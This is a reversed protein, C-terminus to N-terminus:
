DEFTPRVKVPSSGERYIGVRIPKPQKDKRSRGMRSRIRWQCTSLSYEVGRIVIMSLAILEYTRLSGIGRQIRGLLQQVLKAFHTFLQFGGTRLLYELPGHLPKALFERHRGRKTRLTHNDQFHERPQRRCRVDEIQIGTILKIFSQLEPLRDLLLVTDLDIQQLRFQRHPLVFLEVFPWEVYRIRVLATQIPFDGHELSRGQSLMCPRAGNSAILTWVSRDCGDDSPIFFKMQDLHTGQGIPRLFMDPIPNELESDWVIWEMVLPKRADTALRTRSRDRDTFVFSSTAPTPSSFGLATQM